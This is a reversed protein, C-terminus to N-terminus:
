KLLEELAPDPQIGGAVAQKYYRRALRLSVPEIHAYLLALNYYYEPGIDKDLKIAKLLNERAESYFEAGMMAAGLNAHIDADTPHLRALEILKATAERYQQLRILCIGELLGLTANGPERGLEQEAVALARDNEGDQLLQRIFDPATTDAPIKEISRPTSAQKEVVEVQPPPPPSVAVPEAVPGAPYEPIVEVEHHASAVVAPEDKAALDASLATIEEDLATMQRSYIDAQILAEDLETELAEVQRSLAANEVRMRMVQEELENFALDQEKKLALQAQLAKLEGDKEELADLMDLIDLEDPQNAQEERLLDLQQQFYSNQESLSRIMDHLEDMDDLESELDAIKKKYYEVESAQSVVAPPQPAPAAVRPMALPNAPAVEPFLMPPPAPTSATERRRNIDAIQNDCYTVRYRVIRPEWSPFEMALRNYFERAAQYQRVADDLQGADLSQDANVLHVYAETQLKAALEQAAAAGPFFCLVSLLLLIYLHKM